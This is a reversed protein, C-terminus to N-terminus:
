STVMAKRMPMQLRFPLGFEDSAEEIQNAWGQNNPTPRQAVYM